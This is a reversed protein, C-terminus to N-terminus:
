KNIGGGLRVLLLNQQSRFFFILLAHRIATQDKWDEGDYRSSRQLHRHDGLKQTRRFCRYHRSIGMESASSEAAMGWFRPPDHRSRKLIRWRLKLKESTDLFAVMAKDGCFTSCTWFKQLSLTSTAFRIWLWSLLTDSCANEKRKQYVNQDCFCRMENPRFCPLPMYSLWLIQM